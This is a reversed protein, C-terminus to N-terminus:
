FPECAKGEDSLRAIMEYEQGNWRFYPFCFGPLGAEIDPFGDTGRSVLFNVFGQNSYIIRWAGSADRTLVTSNVGAMGNCYTGGDRIMAEPRGDGNIDQVMAVQAESRGSSDDVCGTWKGGGIPQMEAARFLADRDATSLAKAEPTQDEVWNFLKEQSLPGNTSAAGSPASASPASAIEDAAALAACATPAGYDTGNFRRLGPCASNAPELSLNNWRASRERQFGVIGDEAILRKWHGDAEQMLVAFYAGPKGYCRPDVDAIHAEARRDGNLDIFAVRPNSPTGCRNVPRGDKLPFGAEEFLQIAQEASLTPQQAASQGLAPTACLGLAAVFAGISKRPM